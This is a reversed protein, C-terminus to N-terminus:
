AIGVSIDDKSAIEYKTPYSTKLDRIKENLYDIIEKSMFDTPNLLNKPYFSLGPKKVEIIKYRFRNGDPIKEVTIYEPLLAIQRKKINTIGQNTFGDMLDSKSRLIVGVQAPIRFTELEEYFERVKTEYLQKRRKYDRELEEAKQKFSKQVKQASIYDHDKITVLGDLYLEVLRNKSYYGLPALFLAQYSARLEFVKEYLLMNREVVDAEKLTKWNDKLWKFFVQKLEEFKEIGTKTEQYDAQLIDKHLRSTYNKLKAFDGDQVIYELMLDKYEFPFTKTM